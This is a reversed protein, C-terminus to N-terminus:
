PSPPAVCSFETPCAAPCAPGQCALGPTPLWWEDLCAWMRSALNRGANVAFAGATDDLSWLRTEDPDQHLETIASRGRKDVYLKAQLKGCRCALKNVADFCAGWLPRVGDGFPDCDASVNCNRSRDLNCVKCAGTRCDAHTTCTRTIDNSCLSAGQNVCAIGSLCDANNVCPLRTADDCYGFVGERGLLGRTETGFYGKNETECLANRITGPHRLDRGPLNAALAGQGPNAVLKENVIGLVTPFIDISHAVQDSRMTGGPIPNRGDYLLIPTRHGNETFRKKARPLFMGNDTLYIIVTNEELTHFCEADSGCVVSPDNTCTGGQCTGPAGGRVRREQLLTRIRTVANDAMWVSGYLGLMRHGSQFFERYERAGFAFRPEAPNVGVPKKFGFLYEKFSIADVSSGYVPDHDLLQPRALSEIVEPPKTPQHPVHPAYWLFFPRPQDYIGGDATSGFPEGDAVRPGVLMENFLQDVRGTSTYRGVTEGCVPEAELDCTDPDIGALTDAGGCRECLLASKGLGNSSVAGDFIGRTAEGGGLMISCYGADRLVGPLTPAVNLGVPLASALLAELPACATGGSPDDCSRQALLRGTITSALSPLCWPAANHAVPYVTGMAALDDVAPTRPAPVVAGGYKGKSGSGSTRCLEMFGYHCGAQDDSIVLVVNPLRGDKSADLDCRSGDTCTGAVCASGGVCAGGM